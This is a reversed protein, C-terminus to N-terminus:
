RDIHGSLGPELLYDQRHEVAQEGWFFGLWFGAAKVNETAETAERVVEALDLDVLVQSEQLSVAM